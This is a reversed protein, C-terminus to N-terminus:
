LVYNHRQPPNSLMNQLNRNTSKETVHITSYYGVQLSRAVWKQRCPASGAAFSVVIKQGIVVSRRGSVLLTPLAFILDDISLQTGNGIDPHHTSCLPFLEIETKLSNDPKSPQKCIRPTNLSWMIGLAVDWVPGWNRPTNNVALLMTSWTNSHLKQVFHM